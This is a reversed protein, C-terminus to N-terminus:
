VATPKSYDQTTCTLKTLLCLFQFKFLSKIQQFCRIRSHICLGPCTAPARILLPMTHPVIAPRSGVDRDCTPLSSKLHVSHQNERHRPKWVCRCSTVLFLWRGRLRSQATRDLLRTMDLVTLSQRPKWWRRAIAIASAFM